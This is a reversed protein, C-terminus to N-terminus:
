WRINRKTECDVFSISRFNRRSCRGQEWNALTARCKYTTNRCFSFRRHFFYYTTTAVQANVVYAMIATASAILGVLALNVIGLVFEFFVCPPFLITHASHRFLHSISPLHEMMRRKMEGCCGIQKLKM